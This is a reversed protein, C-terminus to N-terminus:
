MLARALWLLPTATVISVASVTVLGFAAFPEVRFLGLWEAALSTDLADLWAAVRADIRRRQGVTPELITWAHVLEEDNV